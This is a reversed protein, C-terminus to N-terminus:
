VSKAAEALIPQQTAQTDRLCSVVVEIGELAKTVEEVSNFDVGVAEAGEPVKTESSRSLVLVTKAGAAVLGAVIARGLMGSGGAVAFTSFRATASSSTSSM